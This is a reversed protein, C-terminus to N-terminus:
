QTYSPMHPNSSLKGNILPTREDDNQYSTRNHRVPAYNVHNPSQKVILEHIEITPITPFSQSEVTMNNNSNSNSPMTQNSIYGNENTQRNSSLSSSM